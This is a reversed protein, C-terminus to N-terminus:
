YYIHKDFNLAQSALCIHAWGMHEINWKSVRFFLFTSWVSPTFEVKFSSM